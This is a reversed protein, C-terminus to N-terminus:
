SIGKFNCGSSPRRVSAKQSGDVIFDLTEVHLPISLPSRLAHDNSVGNRVYYLEAEIGLVFPILLCV